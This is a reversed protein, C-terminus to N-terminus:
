RQAAGSRLLGHELLTETAKRISVPHIGRASLFAELEDPKIPRTVAEWVDATLGDLLHVRGSEWEHALLGKGVRVTSASVRELSGEALACVSELRSVAAQRVLGLGVSLLAGPSRNAAEGQAQLADLHGLAGFRRIRQWWTPQAEWTDAWELRSRCWFEKAGAPPRSFIAPSGFLDSALWLARSVETGVGWKTVLGLLDRLAEDDLGHVLWALEFLNRLLPSDVPDSLAHLAHHVVRGVPDLAWLPLLEGGQTRLRERRLWMEHVFVPELPPTNLNRHLEFVLGNVPNRLPPTHHHDEPGESQLYGEAKLVTEARYLEEDTPFLLDIDSMPREAAESYLCRVLASGKLLVPESFAALKELIRLAETSRFTAEHGSRLYEKRLEQGIQAPVRAQLDQDGGLLAAALLPSLQHEDVLDFWHEWDLTQPRAWKPGPLGVATSLIHLLEVLEPSAQNM